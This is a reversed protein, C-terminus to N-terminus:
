GRSISHIVVEYHQSLRNCRDIQSLLLPSADSRVQADPTKYIKHRVYVHLYIGSSCRRFFQFFMKRHKMLMYIFVFGALM